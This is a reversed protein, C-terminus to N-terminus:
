RADSFMRHVLLSDVQEAAAKTDGCPFLYGCRGREADHYAWMGGSTALVSVVLGVVGAPGSAYVWLLPVSVPFEQSRYLKVLRWGRPQLAVALLDLNREATTRGLLTRWRLVCREM